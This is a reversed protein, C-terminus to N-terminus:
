KLVKEFLVRLNELSQDGVVQEVSEGDVFIILTPIGRIGFRAPTKTNDDVNMKLVKVRGSFEKAIQDIKPTLAKCPGCWEAWFDVVTPVDSNLVETEFTGDSVEFVHESM